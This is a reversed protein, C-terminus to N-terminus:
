SLLPPGTAPPLDAAQGLPYAPAQAALLRPASWTFHVTASLVQPVLAAGLVAYICPASTAKGPLPSKSPATRHQGDDYDVLVPGASTCMVLRVGSGSPMSKLMFGQPLVVQLFLALAALTAGIRGGLVPRFLIM